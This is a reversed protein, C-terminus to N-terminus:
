SFHNILYREYDKQDVIINIGSDLRQFNHSFGFSKYINIIVLVTKMFLFVPSKEHIHHM